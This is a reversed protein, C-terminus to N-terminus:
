GIALPWVGSRLSFGNEDQGFGHINAGALIRTGIRLFAGSRLPFGNEDQGGGHIDIGTSIRTGDKLVRTGM